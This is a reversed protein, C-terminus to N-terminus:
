AAGGVKVAGIGQLGAVGGRAFTGLVKNYAADMSIAAVTVRYTNASSQQDRRGFDNLRKLQEPTAAWPSPKGGHTKRYELEDELSWGEDVSSKPIVIDDGSKWSRLGPPSSPASSEAEAKAGASSPVDDQLMGEIDRMHKRISSIYGRTEAFPINTRWEKGWREIWGDVANVGANYAALVMDWLEEEVAWPAIRKFHDYLDRDHKAQMQIMLVPNRFLFEALDGDPSVGLQELVTRATGPMFQTMGIAGPKGKVISRARPAFTSEQWIQGLIFVPDVGYKEAFERVAPLYQNIGERVSGPVRALAGSYMRKAMPALPGLKQEVTEVKTKLSTWAVDLDQLNFGRIFSDVANSLRLLVANTRGAIKDFENERRQMEADVRAKADPDLGGRLRESRLRFTRAIEHQDYTGQGGVGFENLIVDEVYRRIHQDQVTNAAVWGGVIEHISAIVERRLEPAERPAIGFDRQLTVTSGTVLADMLLAAGEVDGRRFLPQIEAVLKKLEHRGELKSVIDFAISSKNGAETTTFGTIFRILDQTSIADREIAGSYRRTLAAAEELTVGYRVGQRVLDVFFKRLVGVAVEPDHGGKARTSGAINRVTLFSAVVDDGSRKTLRSLEAVDKAVVDAGDGLLFAARRIDSGLDLTKGGGLDPLNRALTDVTQDLESALSPFEARQENLAVMFRRVDGLRWGSLASAQLSRGLETRLRDHQDKAFRAFETMSTPIRVLGTISAFQNYRRVLSGVIGQAEVRVRDLWDLSKARTTGVKQETGSMVGVHRGEITGLSEDLGLEQGRRRQLWSSFADGSQQGRAEEGRELAKVEDRRAGSRKALHQGYDDLYRQETGAVVGEGQDVLVGQAADAGQDADQLSRLFNERQRLVDQESRANVEHAFEITQQFSNPGAM